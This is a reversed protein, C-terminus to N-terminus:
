PLCTPYYLCSSVRPVFYCEDLMYYLYIHMCTVRIQDSLDLLVVTTLIAITAAIHLMMVNYISFNSDYTQVVTLVHVVYLM